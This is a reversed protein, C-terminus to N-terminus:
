NNTKEITQTVAEQFTSSRFQTSTKRAAASLKEMFDPNQALYQLRFDLTAEDRVDIMFGNVEEQVIEAPGGKPPAIVPVGYCMAELITMGFTEICLAPNTLNVVLSARRYFADLNQQVPFITLNSTIEKSGFYTQIDEEGANLVLDFHLSPHRRALDIYQPVGKYDKLSCVMLVHFANGSVPHYQYAEAEKVFEDPLANYIVQGHVGSLKEENMLYNSVYFVTDATVNAIYRLFNKLLQPRIYSEHIHYVVKKGMLAGALAAGFPLLTNVYIIIEKNRYRLLQCFIYFQSFLFATLRLLSNEFFRYPFHVVKTDLRDLFGTRGKSTHVIVPHGAAQLGKLAQTFILPSGSFDNLLHVAVITKKTPNM